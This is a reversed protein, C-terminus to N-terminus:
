RSPLLKELEAVQAELAELKARTRALVERQVDFEERSVLNMRALSGQLVARFNKQLDEHLHQLGAPITEALRKSLDDLTHSDFM